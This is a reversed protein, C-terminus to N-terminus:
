LSLIVSFCWSHGQLPCEFTDLVLLLCPFILQPLFSWLQCGWRAWCRGEPEPQCVELCFQGGAWPVLLSWSGGPFLSPLLPVLLTLCGGELIAIRSTNRCQYCSHCLVLSMWYKTHPVSGSRSPTRPSSGSCSSSAPVQAQEQCLFSLFSPSAESYTRHSGWKLTLSIMCVWWNEYDHIPWSLRILVSAMIVHLEFGEAHIAM